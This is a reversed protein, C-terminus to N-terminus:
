IKNIFGRKENRLMTTFMSSAEKMFKWIDIM